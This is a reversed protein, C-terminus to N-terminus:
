NVSIPLCTCLDNAPWSMCVVCTCAGVHNIYHIFLWYVIDRIACLSDLSVVQPLGTHDHYDRIAESLELM